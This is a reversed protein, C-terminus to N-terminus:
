NKSLFCISYKTRHPNQTIPDEESIDIIPLPETKSDAVPFSKTEVSTIEKKDNLIFVSAVYNGNQVIMKETHYVYYTTNNYTITQDSCLFVNEKNKSVDSGKSCSFMSLIAILYFTRM